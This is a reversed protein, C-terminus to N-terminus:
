GRRKRRAFWLLVGLIIMTALWLGTIMVFIRGPTGGIEGTHFPFLLDAFMRGPAAARADFDALVRGDNASVFLTTTGFARRVDHQQLLRFRWTADEDTPLSIGSLTSGPYRALAIRAASAFGLPAAAVPKQAAAEVPTAAVLREIGSEFVLMIGASVLLLAPIGMWLGLARHWGYLRASRPGAAPPRLAQRWARRRPWAIILGMLINSFLFVGSIGVIWSGTDGSLLTQHLVVLTDFIGGDAIRDEDMHTRLVTGAGDIRVTKSAGTASNDMYLDYRDPAGASVWISGTTWEPESAKLAAIRAEIADLDTPRHPASITADNLEWHFVLIVGTAAQILWFTALVLSIWRHASLLTKRIPM